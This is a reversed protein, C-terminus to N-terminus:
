ETITAIKRVIAVGAGWIAWVAGAIVSVQSALDIVDASSLQVQFISTAVFVILGSAALIAGKVRNSVEEPSASSAAWGALKKSM